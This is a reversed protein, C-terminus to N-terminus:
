SILCPTKAQIERTEQIKASGRRVAANTTHARQELTDVYEQQRDVEGALDRAINNLTLTSAHIEAIAEAREQTITDLVTNSSVSRIRMRMAADADLHTQLHKRAAENAKRSQRRAADQRDVYRGSAGADSSSSRSREEPRLVFAGSGSEVIHPKASGRRKPATAPPPWQADEGPGTPDVDKDSPWVSPEPPLARLVEAAATVERHLDRRLKKTTSEDLSTAQELATTVDLAGKKM